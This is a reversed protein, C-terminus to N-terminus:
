NRGENKDEKKKRRDTLLLVISLAFPALIDYLCAPAAYVFFRAVDEPIKLLRALMTYVTEQSEAAQAVLEPRSSELMIRNNRLVSREEQVGIIRVQFEDYRQWSRNRWYDSEFELRELRKETDNLAEQNEVLLREHAALTENDEVATSTKQDTVWKFQNYNVTLTSFVSYAIIAFGAIIFLLGFIKQAGKEQLFYRAATFSTGSFLIFMVGTMVGTWGPKGGEILFVSTHYASMVASGIGVIAMIIVVLSVSSFLEAAKKQEKPPETNPPLQQVEDKQMVIVAEAEKMRRRETRANAVLDATGKKRRLIGTTCGYAFDFNCNQPEQALEELREVLGGNEFRDFEERPVTVGTEFLVQKTGRIFKLGTGAHTHIHVIPKKTAVSDAM